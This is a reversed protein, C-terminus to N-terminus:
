RLPIMAWRESAVGAGIVFGVFGGVLGGAVAGFPRPDLDGEDPAVFYGVVAGSILGVVLGTSWESKRGASVELSNLASFQVQRASGGSAPQFYFGTSGVELATGLSREGIPPRWELRVKAGPVLTRVQTAVQAACPATDFALVVLASLAITAIRFM